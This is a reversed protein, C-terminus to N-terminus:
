SKKFIIENNINEQSEEFHETEMELDSTPTSPADKRVKKKTPTTLLENIFINQPSDKTLNKKKATTKTTKGKTKGSHGKAM